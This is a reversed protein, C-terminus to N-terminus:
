NGCYQSVAHGEVHVSRQRYSSSGVIMGDRRNSSLRAGSPLSNTSPPPMGTTEPFEPWGLQGGISSLPSAALLARWEREDHGDCALADVNGRACWRVRGHPSGIENIPRPTVGGVSLTSRRGRLALRLSFKHDSRPGSDLYRSWCEQKIQVPCEHVGDVLVDDGPLFGKRLGAHRERHPPDM